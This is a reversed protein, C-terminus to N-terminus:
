NCGNRHPNKFDRQHIWANAGYKVGKIVPMAEHETRPDAVNPNHDYVSPWLVARGRKPTVTLDLEPFHTGGGEEVDNLYFYLTFIRVGCQRDKQYGILDHHRNYHQSKEYRLLQLWESNTEPIGTINEVREMVRKAVPDEYCENQCWANTSTRGAYIKKDYTGDELRRGVDASRQYGEIGGLEILRDAEEDTIANDFVVMWPGIIYDANEASDGELYNPRSVVRPEFQQISPDELIRHFVKTVDGPYLADVANPDLPCRTEVSLYDCSKCVPACKAKMYSPNKECEGLVAWFACSEHQNKCGKRVDDYKEEVNVVNNMYYRADAIKDFIQQERNVDITQPVGMESGVSDLRRAPTPAQYRGYSNSGEDDCVGSTSNECGVSDSIADLENELMGQKGVHCDGGVSTDVGAGVSAVLLSTTFWGLASAFKM